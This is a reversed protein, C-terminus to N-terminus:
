RKSLVDCNQVGFRMCMRMCMYMMMNMMAITNKKVVAEEKWWYKSPIHNSYCPSPYKDINM